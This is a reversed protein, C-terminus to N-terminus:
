AAPFSDLSRITRMFEDFQARTVIKTVDNRKARPYGRGKLYALIIKRAQRMGPLEGYLELMGHVHEEMCACLEEHSPTPCPLAGPPASLDRFLWPNGIAGRAVMIRGCGSGRRLLEADNRNYVGGNAIVPIRLAKAIESIVWTAVAGAYGAAWTRGHVTLARIGTAELRRAYAVSAEIDTTSLVRIKGTVPVRSHKVMADLCACALDPTQGMAAGEGRKTVKRVPCGMNFDIVDFNFRNLILVSKAVFEPDGCLLQVGLWEESNGRALLRLNRKTQLVLAHGDILPTFAFRCGCKRAALRFPLDSYGALPALLVCEPPYPM